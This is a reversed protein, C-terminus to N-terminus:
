DNEDEDALSSSSSKSSESCIKIGGIAYIDISGVIRVQSPSTQCWTNVRVPTLTLLTTGRTTNISSEFVSYSRSNISSNYFYSSSGFSISSIRNFPIRLGTCTPTSRPM